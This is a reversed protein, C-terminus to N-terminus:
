RAEEVFKNIQRDSMRMVDKLFDKAARIDEKLVDLVGGTYSGIYAVTGATERIGYRVLLTYYKSIAKMARRKEARTYRTYNEVYKKILSQYEVNIKQWKRISFRDGRREVKNTLYEMQAPVRVSACGTALMLTLLIPIIYKRM